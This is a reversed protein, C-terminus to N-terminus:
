IGFLDKLNLISTVLYDPHEMELKERSMLGSSVAITRVGANKGAQIDTGMDGIFITETQARQGYNTHSFPQQLMQSAALRVPQFSKKQTITLLGILM